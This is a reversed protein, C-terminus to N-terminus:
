GVIRNRLGIDRVHKEPAYWLKKGPNWHGGISRIQQQLKREHYQIRVGVMPTTPPPPLPYGEDTHLWNHLPQWDAESEILEVTKYRKQKLPDYRYRVCILQEGYKQVLKETGKQGPQRTTKILM